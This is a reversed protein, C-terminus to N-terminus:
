AELGPLLQVSEQENPDTRALVALAETTGPNLPLHPVGAPIYLFEGAHVLTRHQLRDGHLLEIDGYVVYAATEHEAHLHAKARTGPPLKVLHMCLGRAGVTEASVGAFYNLGQQGQYADAARVVQCTPTNSGITTGAHTAM